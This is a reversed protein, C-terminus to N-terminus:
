ASKKMKEIVDDWGLRSLDKVIKGPMKEDNEICADIFEQTDRKLHLNLFYFLQRFALSDAGQELTQFLPEQPSHTFRLSPWPTYFMGKMFIPFTKEPFLMLKKTGFPMYTMYHWLVM